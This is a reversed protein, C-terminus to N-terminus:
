YIFGTQQQVENTLPSVVGDYEVAGGIEGTRNFWFTVDHGDFRVRVGDRQADSVYKADVPKFADVSAATLVHLFRDDKRASSPEVELRWNGWYPGRARRVADKEHEEKYDPDMPYNRHGVLFENGKGGIVEMKADVPLLTQCFLRGDNSDARMVGKKVVPKNKTHLLWEKRYSPDASDMRDYVIIYDPYLFVFQRVAETCKEGYCETADSAIYTFQDNTEFAKVKSGTMKVMGGYNMNAQPDDNIKIGWHYPLPEDPKHVLVVNHAVSQSYYYVLNFDTEKCRDGSDLALHDYKYITFNNEDFHKHQQLTAGATFSCYTADKAFASRMYIQGLTEFHRAHLSSNNLVDLYYPRSPHDTDVIFPLVPYVHNRVTTHRSFERLAAMMGYTDHDLDKYFQMFQSLQEYLPISSMLNTNHFSDGVGAHRLSVPRDSDRIWLWWLWNAYLPLKPYEAAINVGTSSLMTYMFNFQAYSYNGMAYAPVASSLAGDDGATDNRYQLVRRYWDHGTQLHKAALSDCFGDAHAALGSYWLMSRTGYFGTNIDGASNRPINLGYEPQIQEVHEVLPVILERREEDTLAEYIWDYACIANIRSHAYWTVPRINRTAETYAHVSVKLMKKAKELYKERGTFRWALACSAAQRGFEKVPPIPLSRDQEPIPGYNAAVPDDPMQNVEELLKDLYNRNIGHARENIEPWTESNFFIRPHDQRIEPQASLVACITLLLTLVSLKKMNCDLTLIM